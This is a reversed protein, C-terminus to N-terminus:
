MGLMILMIILINLLVGASVLGIIMWVKAAKSQETRAGTGSGQSVEQRPKPTIVQPLNQQSMQREAQQSVPKQVRQPVKAPTQQPTQDPLSVMRNAISIGTFSYVTAIVEDVNKCREHIDTHMMKKIVNLFIPPTDDWNVAEGNYRSIADTPPILNFMYYFTAGLAYIDTWPGQKGRSQYQELPAYGPKLIVSLTKVDSAARSAGFDILKVSGDSCIFINDPSVDRHLINRSHILKLSKLVQALINLAEEPSPCGKLGLYRRLDMGELYEMVIYVTSNEKFFKRVGVICPHGCFQAILKAEDYFRQIGKQVANENEPNTVQVTRHGSNRHCLSAPFYEKIAVRCKNILDYCLYTIGFGGKGIVRGIIFKGALVDGETLASPFRQANTGSTCGHNTQKKPNLPEFCYECYYKGDIEIM